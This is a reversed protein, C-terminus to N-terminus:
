KFGEKMDIPKEQLAILVTPVAEYEPQLERFSLKLQYNYPLVKIDHWNCRHLIVQYKKTILNINKDEPLKNLENSKKIIGENFNSYYYSKSWHLLYYTSFLDKYDDPINFKNQLMYIATSKPVGYKLLATTATM